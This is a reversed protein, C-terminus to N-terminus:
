LRECLELIEGNIARGTGDKIGRCFRMRPVPGQWLFWRLYGEDKAAGTGALGAIGFAKEGGGPRANVECGSLGTVAFHGGADLFVSLVAAGVPVRNLGWAIDECGEGGGGFARDQDIAHRKPEGVLHFCAGVDIM